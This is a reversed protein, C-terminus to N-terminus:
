VAIRLTSDATKAHINNIQHFTHFRAHFRSKERFSALLRIKYKQAM